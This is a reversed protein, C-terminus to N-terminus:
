RCPVRAYKGPHLSVSAEAVMGGAYHDSGLEERQRARPIMRM